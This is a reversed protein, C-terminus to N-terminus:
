VGGVRGSPYAVLVDPMDPADPETLVV